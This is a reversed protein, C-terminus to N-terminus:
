IPNLNPVADADFFFGSDNKKISSRGQLPMELLKSSMYLTGQMSSEEVSREDIVALFRDDM